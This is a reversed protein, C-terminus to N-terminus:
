NTPARRGLTGFVQDWFGSSVGFHGLAHRTGAPTAHHLAHWRKRRSLWAGRAGIFPLAFPLAHHTAHHTLGYALYGGVLGFILACAPWAGLWLWAPLAALMAFLSVTFVTPSAILATPRRHHEAHWRSFPPLGHLVFRHLLYEVLTWGAGGAFAWGVLELARGAPSRLLLWLLMGLLATGYFVFDARYAGPSHELTLFPM